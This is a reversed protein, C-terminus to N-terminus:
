IDQEPKSCKPNTDRYITKKLLEQKIDVVLPQSGTFHRTIVCYYCTHGDQYLSIKGRNSEELNRWYYISNFIFLSKRKLAFYMASAGRDNVVKWIFRPLTRRHLTIDHILAAASYPAYVFALEAFIMWVAPNKRGFEGGTYRCKFPLRRTVLALGGAAPRSYSQINQLLRFVMKREPHQTHFPIVMVADCSRMVHGRWM